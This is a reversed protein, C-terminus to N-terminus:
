CITVANAIIEGVIAVVVVVVTAAVVVTKKLMVIIAISVDKTVQL